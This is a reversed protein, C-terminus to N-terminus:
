WSRRRMSEPGASRSQELAAPFTPSTLQQRFGHTNQTGGSARPLHNRFLNGTFHNPTLHNVNICATPDHRPKLGYPVTIPCQDHLVRGTRFQVVDTLVSVLLLIKCCFQM